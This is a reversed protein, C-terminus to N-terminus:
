KKKFSYFSMKRRKEKSQMKESQKISTLLHLKEVILIRVHPKSISLPSIGSNLQM